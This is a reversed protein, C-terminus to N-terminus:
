DQVDRPILVITGGVIADGPAGLERNMLWILPWLSVHGLQDEAISRWTDGPKATYAFPDDWNYRNLLEEDISPMTIGNGIVPGWQMQNRLSQVEGSLTAIHEQMRQSSNQLSPIMVGFAIAVVAVASAATVLVRTQLLSRWRARDKGEVRRNRRVHSVLSPATSRRDLSTMEEHLCTNVRKWRAHCEECTALHAHVRSRNEDDMDGAALALLDQESPHVDHSREAMEARMTRLFFDPNENQEKSM